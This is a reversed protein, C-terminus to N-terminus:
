DIAWYGIRAMMSWNKGRTPPLCTWIMLPHWSDSSAARSIANMTLELTACHVRINDHGEFFLSLLSQPQQQFTCLHPNCIIMWMVLVVLLVQSIRLKPFTKKATVRRQHHNAGKALTEPSLFVSTTSTSEYWREVIM